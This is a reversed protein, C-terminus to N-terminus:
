EPEVRRRKRLRVAVELDLAADDLAIGGAFRGADQPLLGSPAKAVAVDV